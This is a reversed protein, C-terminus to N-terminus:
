QQAAPTLDVLPFVLLLPPPNTAMVIVKNKGLMLLGQGKISQKLTSDDKHESTSEEVGPRSMSTTTVAMNVATSRWKWTEIKSIESLNLSQPQDLTALACTTRALPPAPTLIISPASMSPPEPSPHSPRVHSGPEAKQVPHLVRCLFLFM